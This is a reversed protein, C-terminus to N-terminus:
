VRDEAASAAPPPMTQLEEGSDDNATPTL